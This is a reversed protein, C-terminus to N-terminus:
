SYTPAKGKSQQKDDELRKHEKIRKMLQHLNELSHMTLSDRLESEQALRLRFTSVAM